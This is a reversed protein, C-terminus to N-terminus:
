LAVESWKKHFFQQFFYYACPCSLLPFAIFMDSIYSCFLVHFNYRKWKLVSSIILFVFNSLYVRAFEM